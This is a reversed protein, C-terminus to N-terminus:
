KGRGFYKKLLAVHEAYTDSCHFQGANDHFYFLCSTERPNLAALVAAVSPSAIPTPPLGKHLYTNYSSKRFMDSPTVKPWWSKVSTNNAKAYQVTADIQLNMNTFLRNWIIGSIMRMDDSGGAEREILSAITLAQEIPVIEATTTGYHSLVEETFRDNVLAQATSPTMEPTVAYVGPSFSGEALPLASGVSATIFAKQQKSNWALAKGFASAVQEKRMGPTITVFRDGVGAVAAVNQYLSVKSVATAAFEFVGWFTKETNAAAAQLPSQKSNLFANVRVSEVITKNQPNVTVPFQEAMSISSHTQEYQLALAFLAPLSFIAGGLVVVLLVTLGTKKLMKKLM